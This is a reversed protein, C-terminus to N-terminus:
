TSHTYTATAGTVDPQDVWYNEFMMPDGGHVVLVCDSNYTDCKDGSWCQFCECRNGAADAHWMGNNNCRSHGDDKSQPICGILSVYSTM